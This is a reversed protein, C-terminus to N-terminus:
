QPTALFNTHSVTGFLRLLLAFRRKMTSDSEYDSEAFPM